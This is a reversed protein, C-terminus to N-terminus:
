SETMVSDCDDCRISLAGKGWVNVKCGPCTYKSKNKKSTQPSGPSTLEEGLLSNLGTTLQSILNTEVGELADILTTNSDMLERDTPGHSTSLRDIWPLNFKKENLLNICENIFRGKPAPYDSMNQGVLKGGPKGTSSPMLGISIMKDSWERNHYSRKSPKGHCYQWCHAMEHVLTQMLEILTARGVYLPNIAIEHCNKGKSSAWRNPSFYGMMGHQRQTTFLILPLKRAFLRENFHDYASQLASYLEETPTM